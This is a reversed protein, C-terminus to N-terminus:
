FKSPNMTPKRKLVPSHNPIKTTFHPTLNGTDLDTIPKQSLCSPSIPPNSPNQPNTPSLLNTSTGSINSPTVSPSKPILPKFIHPSSKPPPPSNKQGLQTLHPEALKTHLNPRFEHANPDLGSNDSLSQTISSSPCLDLPIHEVLDSHKTKTECVQTSPTLGCGQQARECKQKCEPQRKMSELRFSM